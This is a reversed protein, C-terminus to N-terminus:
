LAGPGPNRIQGCSRWCSTSTAWSRGSPTFACILGRQTESLRWPVRFNLSLFEAKGVKADINDLALVGNM